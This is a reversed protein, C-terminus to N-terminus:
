SEEEVPETFRGYTKMLERIDGAMNRLEYFDRLKWTWNGEVTSPKNLRAESGLKLIDQVTIVALNTTSSLTLRIMADAAEADSMTSKGLYKVFNEKETGTAEDRWWGVTTNNDHTGAYVVCAHRHNHPIYPNQPMGEGFAFHLVKMGPLSFEHMIELVDGTMVGLDEAIFLTEGDRMGGFRNSLARFFDSGPGAKWEGNVATAEESPIQWYGAFGRFHDIRVADVCRLVHAFREMWWAYGDESMRDWRYIPNGWRQGTESFYDPPVGAVNVPRGDSDLDFLERHGWVDSSDHAVYIPLDGVLAINRSRCEEKLEDLQRFFIFQEFRCIDLMRAVDPNKKLEDLVKWDRDRFPARWMDWPKQGEMNKLVGFLAYDELWYAERVCFNWFDDSIRKFTTKYADDRRFNLYARLLFDNKVEYAAKYNVTGSAPVVRGLAYEMGILGLRALSEPAIFMINGAFASPSTYPSHASVDCTPGVPLIQWVGVGAAELIDAFEVAAAGMDGIGYDGPLSSIHM